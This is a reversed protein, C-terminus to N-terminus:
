VTGGSRAKTWEALRALREQLRELHALREARFLSETQRLQPEFTVQLSLLDRLSEQTTCRRLLRVQEWEAERWGTRLRRLAQARRRRNPRAGGISM